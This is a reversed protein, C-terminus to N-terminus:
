LSKGTRVDVFSALKSWKEWNHHARCRDCSSIHAPYDHRLLHEDTTEHVPEVIEAGIRQEKVADIGLYAAAM